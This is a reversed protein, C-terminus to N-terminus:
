SPASLTTLKFSFCLKLGVRLLFVAQAFDMQGLSKFYGELLLFFADLLAPYNVKLHLRPTQTMGQAQGPNRPSSRQHYPRTAYGM